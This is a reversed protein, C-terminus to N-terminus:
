KTFNMIIISNRSSIAFTQHQTSSGPQGTGGAGGVQGSAGVGIATGGTTGSQQGGSHASVAVSYIGGGGSSLSNSEKYSAVTSLKNREIVKVIGRDTATAVVHDRNSCYVYVYNITSFISM